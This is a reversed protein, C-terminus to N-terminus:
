DHFGIQLNDIKCNDAQAGSNKIQIEVLVDGTPLNTYSSSIEVNFNDVATIGLIEDIRLANTVDFLRFDCTDNGAGDNFINWITFQLPPLRDTGSLLFDTVVTYGINKTRKNIKSINLTNSHINTDAAHTTTDVAVVLLQTANSETSVSLSDIVSQISITSLTLSAIEGSNAATSLSITAIESANAATSISLAAVESENTSIRAANSQTSIFLDLIDADQFVDFKSTVNTLRGGDGGLDDVTASSFFQEATWTNTSEFISTATGDQFFYMFILSATDAAPATSFTVVNGAIAYDVGDRQDLGDLVVTLSGLAPTSSITFVTKVGDVQATLDDTKFTGAIGATIGATTQFLITVTASGEDTLSGNPVILKRIRISPDGDEEEILVAGGRGYATAASAIDAIPILLISALLPRLM